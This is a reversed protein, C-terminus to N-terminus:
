PAGVVWFYCFLGSIFRVHDVSLWYGGVEKPDKIEDVYYGLHTMLAAQEDDRLCLVSM